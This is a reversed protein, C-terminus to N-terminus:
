EKWMMIGKGYLGSVFGVGREVDRSAACATDFDHSIFLNKLKGEENGDWEAVWSPSRPRDKEPLLGKALPDNDLNYKRQNLAVDDLPGPHPHGAILLKGSRDLRLNDVFFPAIIKKQLVLADTENDSAYIFVAPTNTSSVAWHTENLPIIGNAYPLRVVVEAKGTRMDFHVVSASPLGIYSEIKNLM